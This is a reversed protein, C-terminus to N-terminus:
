FIEVENVWESDSSFYFDKEEDSDPPATDKEPFM